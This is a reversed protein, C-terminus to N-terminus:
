ESRPSGEFFENNIISDSGAFFALVHSIFHHENDNMHNNQDHLEKLFEDNIISDFGTFFALVHSIFHHENDNM